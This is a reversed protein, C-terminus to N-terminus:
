ICALCCSIGGIAAGDFRDWSHATKQHKFGEHRKVCRRGQIHFCFFVFLEAGWPASRGTAAGARGSAPRLEEHVASNMGGACRSPGSFGMPGARGHGVDAPPHGMIRDFNASLEGIKSDELAAFEVVVSERSDVPTLHPPLMWAKRLTGEAPHSNTGPARDNM